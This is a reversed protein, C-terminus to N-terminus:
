RGRKSKFKPKKNQLPKSRLGKSTGGKKRTPKAYIPQDAYDFGEALKPPLEAGILGELRQLAKSDQPTVCTIVQGGSSQVLELSRLYDGDLEPFDVHIVNCVASADLDRAMANTTVLVRIKGDVLAKLARDRLEPKKNGHISEVKIGAHSLLSTLAHVGDRTRVFVMVGSLDPGSELLHQVLEAKQHEFVNYISQPQTSM